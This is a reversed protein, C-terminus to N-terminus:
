IIIFTSIYITAATAIVVPNTINFAELYECIKDFWQDSSILGTDKNKTRFTMAIGILQFWTNIGKTILKESSDTGIIDVLNQDNIRTNGDLGIIVELELDTVYSIDSTISSNDTM